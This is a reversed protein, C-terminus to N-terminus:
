AGAKRAADIDRQRAVEAVTKHQRITSGNGAADMIKDYADAKWVQEADHGCLTGCNMCTDAPFPKALDREPEREVAPAAAPPLLDRLKHVCDLVAPITDDSSYDRSLMFAVRAIADDLRGRADQHDTM